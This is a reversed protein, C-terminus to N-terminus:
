IPMFSLLCYHLFFRLAFIRRLLDDIVVAFLTCINPRGEERPWCLFVEMGLMTGLLHLLWGDEGTRTSTEAPSSLLRWLRTRGDGVVSGGAGM